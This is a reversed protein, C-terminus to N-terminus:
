NFTYGGDVTLAQGTMFRADDSALFAAAGVLDEAVELRKLSQQELLAPHRSPDDSARVVGTQTLGPMICNVRINFPGLERAAVRTLGVVAGKSGVYHMLGPRGSLFTNSSMNVISGGGQERMAPVVAKMALWPGRVNVAMVRDWEEVGIEWFPKRALDAFVAANNILADIRGFAALTERAIRECEDELSVDAALALAIGGAARIDECTQAATAGDRDAAVLRYGDAAFRLAFARGIGRGAGTVVAVRPSGNKEM